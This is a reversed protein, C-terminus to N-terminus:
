AQRVFGPQFRENSGTPPSGGEPVTKAAQNFYIAVGCGIAIIAVAASVAAVLTLWPVYRSTRLTALMADELAKAAEQSAIDVRRSPKSQEFEDADDADEDYVPSM